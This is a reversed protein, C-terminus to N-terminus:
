APHVHPVPPCPDHTCGLLRRMAPGLEEGVRERPIWAGAGRAQAAQQYARDPEPGIVVARSPPFPLGADQHPCCAPFDAADIVLLDPALRELQWRLEAGAHAHTAVWCGCERELLERTFRRMAPHRLAVLVLPHGDCM